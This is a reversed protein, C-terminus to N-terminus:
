WPAHPTSQYVHRIIPSDIPGSIPRPSGYSRDVLRRRHLNSTPNDGDLNWRAGGEPQRRSRNPHAGRTGGDRVSTALRRAHRKFACERIDSWLAEMSSPRMTVLEGGGVNTQDQNFQALADDLHYCASDVRLVTPYAKVNFMEAAQARAGNNLNGADLIGVHKEHVDIFAVGIEPCDINPIVPDLTFNGEPNIHFNTSTGCIKFPHAKIDGNALANALEDGGTVQRIRGQRHEDEQLKNSLTRAQEPCLGNLTSMCPPCWSALLVLYKPPGQSNNYRKAMETHKIHRFTKRKSM